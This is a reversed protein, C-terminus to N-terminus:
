GAMRKINKAINYGVIQTPTKQLIVVHAYEVIHISLCAQSSKNRDSSCRWVSRAPSITVKMWKKMNYLATQTIHVALKKYWVHSKRIASYPKLVQDSLEVGGM